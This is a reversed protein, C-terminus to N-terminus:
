ESGRHKLAKGPERKQGKEKQEDDDDNKRVREDSRAKERLREVRETKQVAADNRRSHAGRNEQAAGPVPTAMVDANGQPARARRDNEPQAKKEPKSARETKEPKSMRETKEQAARKELERIREQKNEEAQAQSLNARLHKEENLRVQANREAAESQRKAPVTKAAPAAETRSRKPMNARAHSKSIAEAPNLPAERSVAPKFAVIRNHSRRERPIPQGAEVSGESVTVTELKQRTRSSVEQPPVGANIIRNDNYVYTNKVVTTQNYINTVRSRPVAVSAVNSELFRDCPVFSYHRDSLGFDFNLGVSVGKFRFGVGAEFRAEPPLPAWGYYSDCARWHVWAPAWETDPVWVWYHRPHAVWRGYHFAAWGWPYFSEWYWGHDTWIWHGDHAYPRWDSVRSIVTPQWVWGYQEDRYWTGHPALAEYFFSINVKEGPAYVPTNEPVPAVYDGAPVDSQPTSEAEAVPKAGARLNKGHDIMSVIVTASVGAKELETLEDATPDYAVDSAQIFALMVENSTGARQLKLIEEIGESANVASATVWLLALVATTTHRM